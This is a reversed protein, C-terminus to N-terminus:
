IHMELTLVSLNEHSDFQITDVACPFWNTLVQSFLLDIKVWVYRLIISTIKDELTDIKLRKNQIQNNLYANRIHSDFPCNM